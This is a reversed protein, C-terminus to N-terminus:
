RHLVTSPELYGKEALLEAAEESLYPWGQKVFGDGKAGTAWLRSHGTMLLVADDPQVTDGSAKEAALIDEASIVEDLHKRRLDLVLASRCLIDAPLDELTAGDGYFHFPADMHTGTHTCFTLVEGNYSGGRATESIMSVSPPFFGYGVPIDPEFTHTLDVIRM